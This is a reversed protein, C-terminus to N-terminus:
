IMALLKPKRGDVTAKQCINESAVLPYGPIYRWMISLLVFTNPIVIVM